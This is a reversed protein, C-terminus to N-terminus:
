LGQETLHKRLRELDAPQWGTPGLLSVWADLYHSAAYVHGYGRPAGTATVMDVVSQLFSVVPVWVMTTSIDPARPNTAIAPRRYLSTREFFVIPDSPYQLYIIRMPGWDAYGRSLDTDQTAFRFIRGDGYRPRWVPSDPSRASVVDTWTRAAFPPGVWLAGDFPDSVIDYIDVSLDSNLAGLSLGFLYLRPRRDPPLGAWHRYITRFVQRATESGREPEVLLSLWSPLYSYQVAVTAVDGHLLYELPASASPDVWGTGTPTAIVLTSRDFAGTRRLEALALEARAVPDEASNMGVYIRIPDQAPAGGLDQIMDRDPGSEIYSRGAAGLSHWSVLSAASGSKLPDAPATADTPMLADLRAYALDLGDVAKRVLVGSGFSWFLACAMVFGILLSLRTPLVPTLLNACIVWVRRFLRGIFLLIVAVGAAVGAILAARLDEVPALGMVSRVSDQWQSARALSFVIFAASLLGAGLRAARLGRWDDLDLELLRAIYVILVGTAYGIAFAVGGLGGQVIDTRPVMGPMLAAAFALSGFLVGIISPSSLLPRDAVRRRRSRRTGPASQRSESTM